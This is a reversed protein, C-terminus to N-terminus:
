PNVFGFRSLPWVVLLPRGVLQKRQLPPNWRSDDSDKSDDGLIYYGDGTRLTNGNALSGYRYYKIRELSKPRPSIQGNILIQDDENMSLSENPLGVVRKMILVGESSHFAVLNWRKPNSFWYTIRESLVYDSGDKGDGALTPSMSGSIMVSLDFCLFYVLFLVGLIAFAREVARFLRSMRLRLVQKANAPANLELVNTDM